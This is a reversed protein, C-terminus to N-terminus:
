ANQLVGKFIATGLAECCLLNREVGAALAPIEGMGLSPARDLPERATGLLAGQEEWWPCSTVCFLPHQM